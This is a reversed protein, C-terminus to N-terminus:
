LEFVSTRMTLTFSNLRAVLHLGTWGTFTSTLLSTDHIRHEASDLLRNNTVFTFTATLHGLLLTANTTACSGLPLLTRNLQLDRRTNIVPRSNAQATMTFSN